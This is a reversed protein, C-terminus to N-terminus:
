VLLYLFQCVLEGIADLIRQQSGNVDDELKPGGGTAKMGKKVGAALMKAESKLCTWKKLVENGTREVGSVASVQKALVEWGKTKAAATVM